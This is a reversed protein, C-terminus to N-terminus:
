KFYETIGLVPFAFALSAKWPGGAELRLVEHKRAREGQIETWALDSAAKLIGIDKDM